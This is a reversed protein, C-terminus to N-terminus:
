LLLLLQPTAKTPAPFLIPDEALTFCARLQEVMEGTQMTEKELPLISDKYGYFQLAQNINPKDLM